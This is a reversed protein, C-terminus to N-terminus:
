YSRRQAAKEGDPAPLFMDAQALGLKRATQISHDLLGMKPYRGNTGFSFKLGAAKAQQLFFLKPLKFGSNIEIAIRHKVAADLVRGIRAKTWLTDYDAGYPKPLWSVNALIDIPMREMNEVYWDVYRDMFSQPPGLELGPEWMKHRKGNKDPFTWMDAIIYDLQALMGKSFCGMWDTWEAQVGKYVGKGELMDLYGKLEDDNSLVVPYINEKTGAHDVIGLKVKREKGLAVVEDITSGDLHAHFDILQLDTKEEAANAYVCSAAATGQALFQRRSIAHKV